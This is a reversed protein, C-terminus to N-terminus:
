KDKKVRTVKLPPVDPLPNGDAARDVSQWTFADKGVPVLINTATLASGDPLVGDAEIVWRNEERTWAAEGFTGSDDFLWSRLGGAPDKGIIENGSAIVKGDTKLSYRCHLYVKNEDWSYTTRVETGGDKGSWEGILWELDKPSVLTAPDPVWERVTAMRWGDDEKVHLVSYESEAPEKDGPLRLLLSGEEVATHHGILRISEIKVDITAKPNKKFFDAYAKELADRGRIPEDDPGDYEADKTFLAAMAKADGKNFAKAFEEATKRVAAEDASEPAKDDKGPPGKEQAQGRFLWGTVALAALAAALAAWVKWHKRM